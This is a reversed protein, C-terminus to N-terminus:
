LDVVYEWEDRIPIGGLGTEPIEPKLKRAEAVSGEHVAVLAFGLHDYFGQAPVNDNTTVLWLRRCGRTRGEAMAAELLARGIGRGPVLANLTVVEVAEGDFRLTALGVRRGKAEAVLGELRDGRHLRGRSVLRESGWWERLLDVLWDRDGPVLPRIAVGM